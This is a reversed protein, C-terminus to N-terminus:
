LEQQLTITGPKILLDEWQVRKRVEFREVQVHHSRKDWKGTIEVVAGRHVDGRWIGESGRSPVIVLVTDAKANVQNGSEKVFEQVAIANLDRIIPSLDQAEEATPLPYLPVVTGLLVVPVVQTEVGAVKEEALTFCSALVLMGVLGYRAM